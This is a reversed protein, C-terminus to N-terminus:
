GNERRAPFCPTPGDTIGAIRKLQAIDLKLQHNEGRLVALENQLKKM